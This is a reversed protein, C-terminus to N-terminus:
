NGTYRFLSLNSRGRPRESYVSGTTNTNTNTNGNGNGNGNSNTVDQLPVRISLPSPRYTRGPKEGTPRSMWKESLTRNEANLKNEPVHQFSYIEGLINSKDVKEEEEEQEEATSKARGNELGSDMSLNWEDDQINEDVSEIGVTTTRRLKGEACKGEKGEEQLYCETNVEGPDTSFSISSNGAGLSAPTQRNFTRDMKVLTSESMDSSNIYDEAEDSESPILQRTEEKSSVVHEAESISSTDMKDATEEHESKLANSLKKNVENIEDETIDEVDSSSAAFERQIDHTPRTPVNTKHNNFFRSITPQGGLDNGNLLRQRKTTPSEKIPDKKQSQKNRVFSAFQDIQMASKRKRTVLPQSEMQRVPVNNTTVSRKVTHGSKMFNSNTPLSLSRTAIPNVKNEWSILIKKTFPDLDGTAIKEHIESDLLFGTCSYIYEKSNNSIVEETLPNMHQAMKEIPNFVIQHRFAIKARKYEEEFESPISKGEVRICSLVREITKYSQSLQIAKQMGIGPIGKTYDCGSVTAMLLLQDDNFNSIYSGKCNKFNDRRVEICHGQDNLKTILTKCGFILLDSDESIIGEVLGIKELFVMQSDAEYPAVIYKIAKSKFVDILSKAMEPSVDCAKQFYSFALKNNKNAKAELAMRKYEQRRTEREKETNGKTPLYDGDLVFYPTINFHKLMDLKKLFYNIYARTPREMVLDEACCFTSKHLWAYTDIALTKGRYRELSTLEQIPKLVPLLGSVGM